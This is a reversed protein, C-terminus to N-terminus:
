LLKLFYDRYNNDQPLLELLRQVADIREPVRGIIRLLQDIDQMQYILHSLRADFCNRWTSLFPSESKALFVEKIYRSLVPLFGQM